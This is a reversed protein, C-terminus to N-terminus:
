QANGKIKLVIPSDEVNCYVTITKDFHEPRDAKYVVEIKADQGPTIPAKPYEASTCGCSTSVDVIVLPQTGTNTFTFVTRQEQQWNFQGLDNTVQDIRVDTQLKPEKKLVKDGQIITLYLEKVKMNHIPNGIAVVKNKKDLLFTQFMMDSPFHNLQNLSDKEDICVPYDFNSNALIDEIDTRKKPNFYFLFPIKKNSVSDVVEIFQKWQEPRLKCSTCGITDIYILIKFEADDNFYGTTDKGLRTFTSSKPFNIEKGDWEEILSTIEKVKSNNCAICLFLFLCSVIYKM